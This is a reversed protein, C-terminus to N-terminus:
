GEEDRSLLQYDSRRESYDILEIQQKKQSSLANKGKYEEENLLKINAQNEEINM